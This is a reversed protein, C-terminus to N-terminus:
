HNLQNENPAKLQNTGPARYLYFLGLNTPKIQFLEWAKDDPGLVEIDDPDQNNHSPMAYIGMVADLESLKIVTKNNM